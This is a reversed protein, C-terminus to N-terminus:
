LRRLPLPTCLKRIMEDTRDCVGIQEDLARLYHQAKAMASPNSSDVYYMIREQLMMIQNRM